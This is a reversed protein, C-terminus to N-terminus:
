NSHEVVKTSFLNVVGLSYLYDIGARSLKAIIFKEGEFYRFGRSTGEPMDRMLGVLLDYAELNSMEVQPSVGVKVKPNQNGPNYEQLKDLEALLQQYSEERIQEPSKVVEVTFPSPEPLGVEDQDSDEIAFVSTSVVVTCIVVAVNKLVNM